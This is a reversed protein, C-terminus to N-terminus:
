KKGPAVQERERYIEAPNQLIVDLNEPDRWNGDELDFWWKDKKNHKGYGWIDDMKILFKDMWPTHETM